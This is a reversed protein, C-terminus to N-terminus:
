HHLLDQRRRQGAGAQRGREWVFVEVREGLPFHINIM